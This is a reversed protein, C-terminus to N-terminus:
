FIFHDLENLGDCLPMDAEFSAFLHLAKSKKQFVYAKSIKLQDNVICACIMGDDELQEVIIKPVENIGIEIIIAKYPGHEPLGTTLAVSEIMCNYKKLKERCKSALTPEPEVVYTKCGLECLITATYGYNGGIVLVKDDTTLILHQLFLALTQPAFMYRGPIDFSIPSDGYAIPFAVVPIFNERPIENFIKLIKQDVIGNPKLQSCVMNSRANQVADLRYVHM